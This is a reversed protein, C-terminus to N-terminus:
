AKQEGGIAPMWYSKRAEIDLKEFPNGDPDDNRELYSRLAEYDRM